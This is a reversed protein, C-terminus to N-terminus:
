SARYVTRGGVITRLARINKLAEDPVTLIDDSLIVLDALKGPEITGTLKEAFTYRSAASTYLRIAEERTIAEEAGYIEGKIDRRTTMVYMNIFPSAPNIPYDTGQALLDLGMIDIMSRMPIAREATRRGLHQTVAGGKDWLFASQADVRVDLDRARQMQDRRMLSGHLLIFRRGKISKERHAGEYADLVSDIAADGIAHIGVRWDHRNAIAVFGNLRDQPIVITGHYNPDHPYGERTAATGLTMGGDVQLKVGSLSVWEDGFDSAVGIRSFLTEWEELSLSPNLSGTPAFMLSVRLTAEDARRIAHHVRVDCPSVAGSIASTIGFSNFYAMAQKMQSVLQDFSPEPLLRNVLGEAAEELVGNPEGKEDRHIIGGDPDPTDRTVGALALARSNVLSFHGIPLIVPHDPAAEDLDHRTLFRKEKLQAIPHWIRGRIWAGQPTKRAMDRVQAQAEAVTSVDDFGVTVNLLGAREVHAHTDILGPLVCKGQLDVVDTHPGALRSVDKSTGVALIHKGRIAVSEAVAFAPDVTLVKGNIFIQDAYGLAACVDSEM